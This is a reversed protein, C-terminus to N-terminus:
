MNVYYYIESGGSGGRCSGTVAFRHTKAMLRASGGPKAFQRDGPGGRRLLELKEIQTLLGILL